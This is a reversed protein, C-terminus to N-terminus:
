VVVDSADPWKYKALDVGTGADESVNVGISAAWPGYWLPFNYTTDLKQVCSSSADTLDCSGGVVGYDVDAGGGPGTMSSGVQWEPFDFGIDLLHDLCGKVRIAADLGTHVGVPGTVQTVNTEDCVVMAPTCQNSSNPKGLACSSYM